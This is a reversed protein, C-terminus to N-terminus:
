QSMAAPMPTWAEQYQPLTDTIQDWSARSGVYTHFQPRIGPDGDFARVNTAAGYRKTVGSAEGSDPSAQGYADAIANALATSAAIWGASRGKVEIISVLDGTGM